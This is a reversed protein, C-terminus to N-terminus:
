LWTGTNIDELFLTAWNFGWASTKKKDGEVVELAVTFINSGAEVRSSEKYIYIYQKPQSHM